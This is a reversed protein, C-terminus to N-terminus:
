REFHYEFDYYESPFNYYFSTLIFRREVEVGENDVYYHNYIASPQTDMNEIKLTTKSYEHYVYTYHKTTSEGTITISFNTGSLSHNEIKLNWNCDNDYNTKIEEPYEESWLCYMENFYDMTIGRSWPIEFRMKYRGDKKLVKVYGNEDITKQKKGDSTKVIRIGEEFCLQLLYDNNTFKYTEDSYLMEGNVREYTRYEYNGKELDDTNCEYIYSTINEFSYTKYSVKSSESFPITIEKGTETNKIWFGADTNITARTMNNASRTKIRSGTQCGRMLNGKAPLCLPYQYYVNDIDGKCYLGKVGSKTEYKYYTKRPTGPYFAEATTAGRYFRVAFGNLRPLVENKGIKNTAGIFDAANAKLVADKIASKDSYAYCMATWLITKNMNKPLCVAMDKDLVVDREYNKGNNFYFDGIRAGKGTREKWKKNYPVVLQGRSNGHCVLVVLDYDAFKKMSDFSCDDGIYEDREQDFDLHYADAIAHVTRQFDYIDTETWPAWLLIRRSNLIREDNRIGRTICDVEESINNDTASRTGKEDTIGLSKDVTSALNNFDDISVDGTSEEMKSLGYKDVQIELGGPTTIYLFSDEIVSSVKPSYREMYDQIEEYTANTNQALFSSIDESISEFFEIDEESASVFGKEEDDKSCAVFLITVALLLLIKKMSVIINKDEKLHYYHRVIYSQRYQRDKVM